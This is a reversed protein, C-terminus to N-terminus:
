AELKAIPFLFSISILLVHLLTYIELYINDSKHDFWFEIM